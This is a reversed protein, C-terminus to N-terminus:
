RTDGSTARDGFEPRALFGFKRLEPFALELHLEAAGTPAQLFLAQQPYDAGRHEVLKFADGKQDVAKVVVLRRDKMNEDFEVGLGYVSREPGWYRVIWQWSNTVEVGPALINAVKVSFDGPQFQNTLDDHMQVNPLPISPLKWIEAKAFDASRLAQLEIKWADEGPWLAGIFEAV